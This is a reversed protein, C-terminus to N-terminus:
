CTFWQCRLTYTFIQSFALPSPCFVRCQRTNLELERVRFLDLAGSKDGFGIFLMRVAGYLTSIRSLFRPDALQRKAAAYDDVDSEGDSALVLLLTQLM